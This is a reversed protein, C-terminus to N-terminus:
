FTIVNNEERGEVDGIDRGKSEKLDVAERLKSKPTDYV